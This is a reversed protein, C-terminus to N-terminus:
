VHYVHIYLATRPVKIPMTKKRRGFMHNFELDWLLYYTIVVHIFLSLM